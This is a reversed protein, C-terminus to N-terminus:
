HDQGISLTRKPKRMQVDCAIAWHGLGKCKYSIVKIKGCVPRCRTLRAPIRHYPLIRYSPFARWLHLEVWKGPHDSIRPQRHRPDLNFVRLLYRTFTEELDDWTDKWDYKQDKPWSQTISERERCSLGMRRPQAVKDSNWPADSLNSYNTQEGSGSGRREM